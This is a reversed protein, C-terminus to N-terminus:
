LFGILIPDKGSSIGKIQVEAFDNQKLSQAPFEVPVYHQGYGKALGKDNIQEILVRQQKDIFSSRYVLKNTEALNRIIESRETKVKGAIQDEMRAARTGNRISYKFTHVHSFGIEKVLSVTEEFERDTEGPFGVMIDTTFNFDPIKTKIKEIINRYESVSYMRRMQLLIRDSGSQLCLHLHPAVKPHELLEIFRDGYGDPEISSIRVRFDGSIDVVSELLKEFNWDNWDYRGINVGTLVIEKYGFDLVQKINDIIEKQPRSIARGRVKPVICFTCFNDCGDQIKIMSRTHMTKDAPVYNFTDAKIEGLNIVEGELHSDVINFISSKQENKVFYTVDKLNSPNDTHNNVMCGTVVLLSDPNKRNAFNVAQRSRSDGQNTVTCTNVVYVDASESFDVIEYDGHHFQSVISDTEFQNLRCGLTKFAIRKM